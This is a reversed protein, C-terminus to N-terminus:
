KTRKPFTSSAAPPWPSPARGRLSRLRFTPHIYGQTRTSSRRVEVAKENSSNEVQLQVQVPSKKVLPSPATMKPTNTHESAAHDSNFSLEKVPQQFRQM